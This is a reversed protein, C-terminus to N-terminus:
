VDIVTRNGMLSQNNIGRVVQDILTEEGINVTIHSDGSGQSMNSLDSNPKDADSFIKPLGSAQDVLNKPIVYEGKHVIGAVDQTGGRGTFGGQSYLGTTVRSGDAYEKTVVTQENMTWTVSKGDLKDLQEWVSQYEKRLKKNSESLEDTTEKEKRKQEELRHEAVELQYAAEKAELTGKGYQEVTENYTRQARKVALTSGKLALRQDALSREMERVKIALDHADQMAGNARQQASTQTDTSQSLGYLAGVLLGVAAIALGIPNAALVINFAIWASRLVGIGVAQAAQFATLLATATAHAATAATSIIVIAKYAALAVTVGVVAGVLGNFVTQNATIINILGSLTNILLYLSGVVVVGILEAFPRFNQVSTWVATVLNMIATKANQLAPELWNWAALAVEKINRAVEKITPMNDAIVGLAGEFAEGISSIAGSINESGIVKAINAIGRSVAIKMNTIGTGVGKTADKAQKEFSAFNKGGKKNLEIISDVFEDNTVTGESLEEKLKQANSTPGLLSKAVQDLQGPMVEMLTKFEQAEFKGKGLAQSFQVFARQADESGKGGALAMNNFALTLDTVKELSYDTSSAIAVNNSVIDDLKSPLGSLGDAIKKVSKSSEEASFGLNRLIKPANKLTDLRKIAGTVSESILNIGKNVLSQAAGAIVGFAVM